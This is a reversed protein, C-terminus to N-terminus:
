NRTRQLPQPVHLLSWRLRSGRLPTRRKSRNHIIQKRTLPFTSFPSSLLVFMFSPARRSGAFMTDIVYLGWYTRRWSEALVPDREMNAFTRSNMRIELAMYIARDLTIRAREMEDEAHMAIAALLLALVSFGNPPLGPIDLQSFAIDRLESSSFDRAYLSGIYQM